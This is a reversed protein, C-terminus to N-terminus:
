IHTSEYLWRYGIVDLLSTPGAFRTIDFSPMLIIVLLSMKWTFSSVDSLLSLSYAFIDECIYTSTEIMMIVYNHSNAYYNGQHPEELCWDLKHVILRYLNFICTLLAVICCKLWVFPLEDSLLSLSYAFTTRVVNLSTTEIMMFIVSRKISFLSVPEPEM